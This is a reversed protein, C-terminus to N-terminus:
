SRESEVSYVISDGRYYGVNYEIPRNGPDYVFRKRMLIPEGKDINLMKSLPIDAAKASIEEKSLKAVVKYQEKLIEYLPKTFDEEGTLGIRPHFYSIFFVFPGEKGGRLREMKLIKVGREINFFMRVEEAPVEWTININYNVVEIGKARMEQTFSLWNKAKSDVMKVVKTGVGKKRFLLGEYVLKNTAQRLTNRSIGLEKALDVEKPLLKGKQYEPMQIMKRLLEEVQVHLPIPSRHDISLDM